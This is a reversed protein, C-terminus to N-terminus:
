RVDDSTREDRLERILETSDEPSENGTFLSRIREVARQTATRDRADLNEGQSTTLSSAEFEPEGM